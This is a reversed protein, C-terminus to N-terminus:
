FTMEQFWEKILFVKLTGHHGERMLNEDQRRYFGLDANLVVM